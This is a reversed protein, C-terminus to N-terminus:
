SENLEDLIQEAIYQAALDEEPLKDVIMQLGNITMELKKEVDEVCKVCYRDTQLGWKGEHQCSM